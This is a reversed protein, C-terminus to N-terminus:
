LEALVPKLNAKRDQVQKMVIDYLRKNTFNIKADLPLATKAWDDSVSRTMIYYETELGKESSKTETDFHWAENFYAPVEAVIRKAGANVLYRKIKTGGKLDEHTVELVHASLIVNCGKGEKFLVRLADIIDNIGNAEIGYDEIESPTISHLATMRDFRKDMKLNASEYKARDKRSLNMLMRSISTLSAVEVTKYPNYSILNDMKEAIQKWHTFQNFQLSKLDGYMLKVPAIRQDVDFVYMDGARTFSTTGVTKGTGPDGKALLSISSGFVDIQDVTQPKLVDGM